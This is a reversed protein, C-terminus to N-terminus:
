AEMAPTKIEDAKKTEYAIDIVEDAPIFRQVFSDEFDICYVPQDLRKGAMAGTERFDIKEIVPAGEAPNGDALMPPNGVTFRVPMTAAHERRWIEIIGAM